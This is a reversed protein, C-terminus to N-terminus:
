RGPSMLTKTSSVFEATRLRSISKASNSRSSLPCAHTPNVDAEGPFPETSIDSQDKTGAELEGVTLKADGASPVANVKGADIGRAAIAEAAVPVM